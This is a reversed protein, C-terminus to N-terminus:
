IDDYNDSEFFIHNKFDLLDKYLNECFNKINPKGAAEPTTAAADCFQMVADIHERIGQNNYTLEAITMPSPGYLKFEENLVRKVSESIIRKLESKRLKTTQKM